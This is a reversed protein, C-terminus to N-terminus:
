SQTFTARRCATVDRRGSPSALRVPSPRHMELTTTSGGPLPAPSHLPKPSSPFEFTASSPVPPPLKKTSASLPPGAAPPPKITQKMPEISMSLNASLSLDSFNHPPRAEATAAAVPPAAASSSSLLQSKNSGATTVVGGDKQSKKVGSGAAAPQPKLKPSPITQKMNVTGSAGRITTQLQQPAAAAPPQQQPPSTEKEKTSSAAGKRQPTTEKQVAAAAEAAASPARPEEGNNDDGNSSHDGGQWGDENELRLILAEAYRAIMKKYVEMMHTRLRVLHQVPVMEANSLALLYLDCAAFILESLERAQPAIHKVVVWHLSRDGPSVSTSQEFTQFAFRLMWALSSLTQQSKILRLWPQEPFAVGIMTPERVAAPVLSEERKVRRANENWHEEAMRIVDSIDDMPADLSGLLKYMTERYSRIASDLELKLKEISRIPWLIYTIAFYVTISFINQQIRNMAANPDSYQSIISIVSFVMANGAQTFPISTQVFNGVLSLIGLYIYLQWLEGDALQVAFLATLSGMVTGLVRNSAYQFSEAGTRQVVFAIIAPGAVPTADEKSLVFVQILIPITMSLALKIAEKARRILAGETVLVTLMVRLTKYCSLLDDIPSKIWELIRSPVNTPERFTAITEAMEDICFLFAGLFVDAEETEYEENTLILEDRIESLREQFDERVSRFLELETETIPHKFDCIKLVTNDMASVLITLPEQIRDSFPALLRTELIEPKLAINEVLQLICAVIRTMDRLFVARRRIKAITEGSHPEYETEDIRTDLDASCQSCVQMLQKIRILCYEREMETKSWYSSVVGQIIISLAGGYTSCLGTALKHSWNIRPFLFAGIGMAGGIIVSVLFDRVFAYGTQEPTSYLQVMFVAICWAGTKKISEAVLAILLIQLFYLFIFLVRSSTPDIALVISLFILTVISGKLVIVFERIGSGFTPATIWYAFSAVTSPLAFYGTTSPDLSLVTAPLVALFTARLTWDIRVWFRPAICVACQDGGFTSHPEVTRQLWPINHLASTVVANRRQKELMEDEDIEAMRKRREQLKKEHEGGGGGGSNILPLITADAGGGVSSQAPSGSPVLNSGRHPSFSLDSSGGPTAAGNNNNSFQGRRRAAPSTPSVARWAMPDTLKILDDTSNHRRKLLPHRAGGGIELDGAAHGSIAGAGLPNSNNPVLQIGFDFQRKAEGRNSLYSHYAPMINGDRSGGGFRHPSGHSSSSSPPMGGRQQQPFSGFGGTAGNTTTTSTHFGNSRLPSFASPEKAAGNAATTAAATSGWRTNDQQHQQQQHNPYHPSSNSSHVSEFGGLSMTRANGVGGHAIKSNRVDAFNRSAGSSVYRRSTTHGTTPSATRHSYPSASTMAGGGRSELESFKPFASGASSSRQHASSATLEVASAAARGRQSSPNAPPLLDSSSTRLRPFANDDVVENRANPDQHHTQQSSLAIPTFTSVPPPPPPVSTPPPPPRSAALALPPPATASPTTAATVKPTTSISNPSVVTFASNPHQQMMPSNILTGGTNTASTTTGTPPSPPSAALLTTTHMPPLQRSRTARPPSSGGVTAVSDISGGGVMFQPQQQQQQQTTSMGNPPSVLSNNDRFTSDDDETGQQTASSEKFDRLFAAVAAANHGHQQLLFSSQAMDPPSLSVSVGGYPTDTGGGGGGSSRGAAAAVSNGLLFRGTATAGLYPPTEGLQMAPSSPSFDASEASVGFLPSSQRQEPENPHGSSNLSRAMEFHASSDGGLSHRRRHQQRPM